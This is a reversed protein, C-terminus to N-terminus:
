PVHRQHRVNSGTGTYTLDYIGAAVKTSGVQVPTGITVKQTKSGAFAPVAFLVLLLAFGFFRKM